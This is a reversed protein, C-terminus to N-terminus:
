THLTTDGSSLEHVIGQEDELLLQGWKNIGRAIGNIYNSNQMVKIYKNNLYDCESWEALFPSLQHNIFRDFYSKLFCIMQAILLNRNYHAGTIEYLSCWPKDTLQHIKTDTNVNLGIGFIIQTPLGPESLMEILSGCLKKDNWLLDNPWKIEIKMSPDLQNLMGRVALSTILSLGSLKTLEQEYPWRISCYINEGLPSHWHRGFRGRGQTQLEACCIEIQNSSPLEKLYHNTSTISQFVCVNFHDTLKQSQLAETILPANLAEM